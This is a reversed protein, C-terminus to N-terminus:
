RSAVPAAARNLAGWPRATSLLPVLRYTASLFLWLIRRITMAVPTTVVKAPLVVPTAPLASPVPVAAVNLWGGPMAMSPLPVLRYTAVRLPLLMRLITMAVPTTVVRAPLVVPAAPLALPVPVAAVNLAGPPRATSLVPVLRYTASPGYGEPAPILLLWDM